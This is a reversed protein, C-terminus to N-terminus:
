EQKGAGPSLLYGVGVGPWGIIEAQCDGGGTFTAEVLMWANQCSVTPTLRFVYFLAWLIRENEKRFLVHWMGLHGTFTCIFLNTPIFKFGGVLRSKLFAPSRRIPNCGLASNNPQQCEVM